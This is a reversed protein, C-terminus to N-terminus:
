ARPESRLRSLLFARLRRLWGPRMAPAPVPESVIPQVIARSERSAALIQAGSRHWLELLGRGGDDTETVFTVDVIVPRNDIVSLATQWADRINEVGKGSLSGALELRLSDPQDHIYYQLPRKDRM